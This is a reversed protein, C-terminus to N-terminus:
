LWLEGKNYKGELKFLGSNINAKTDVWM